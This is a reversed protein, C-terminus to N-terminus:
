KHEDSNKPKSNLIERILANRDMVFGQAEIPQDTQTATNGLARDLRMKKLQLDIMRLKKDIKAQKATVAHGLITSASQLIQGSLRAEVNMSLDVLDKFTTTALLALEDLETDSTDLDRVAPLAEDIKDIASDANRLAEQLGNINETTNIEEVKDPENDENTPLNFLAELKKTM